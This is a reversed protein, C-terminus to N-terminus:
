RSRLTTLFKVVPGTVQDDGSDIQLVIDAHTSGKIEVFTADSSAALAERLFADDSKIGAFDESGIIHLHPISTSVLSARTSALAQQAATAGFLPLLVEDKTKTDTERNVGNEIDFLGSLLVMGDVATRPGGDLLPAASALHAGASHGMIVLPADPFRKRMFDVADNVDDLMPGLKVDPFLRYNCNAVVFGRKALARGVNGYLGTFTQFYQKDQASWYGGHFFVVVPARADANDPTYLDLMHREDGDELYAVNTDVTFGDTACASVVVVFVSAFVLLRKDFMLM